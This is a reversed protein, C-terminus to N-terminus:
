KKKSKISLEGKLREVKPLHGKTIIEKRNFLLCLTALMSMVGVIFFLLHFGFKEAVVGGIAAAIGAGISASTSYFGWSVGENGKRLHRTFLAMWGPYAIATGFGNLAQVLYLHIPKSIFIFLFPVLSMLFYGAVTVYFDDYEALNKDIIKAVPIKFLSTTIFYIMSGYGIVALSGSTVQKTLFVAVIPGMLGMASFLM